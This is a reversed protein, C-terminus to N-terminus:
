SGPSCALDILGQLAVLGAADPELVTYTEPGGELSLQLPFVFTRQSAALAHPDCRPATVVVPVGALDEGPPLRLVADGTVADGATADAAGIPRVSLIVSDGLQTLAVDSEGQGRRLEVSGHLAPVAGDRGLLWQSGFGVTVARRLEQQACDADRVRHLLDLSGQDLELVSEEAKRAGEPRVVLHVLATAGGGPLDRCRTEGYPVPLDVRRDPLLVADKATPELSAFGTADLRVELVDVARPGLNTVTVQVYRRAEDRRYQRLTVQLPPAQSAVAASASPPGEGVPPVPAPGCGALGALVAVTAATARVAVSGSRALM